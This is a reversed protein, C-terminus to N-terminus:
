KMVQWKKYEEPTLGLNRAIELQTADLGAGQTTVVPSRTDSQMVPGAALVQAARADAELKVKTKDARHAVLRDFNAPQGRIYAVLDEWAQPQSLPEKSPLAAVMKNIQDGFLAFEEPYRVRASQEATASSGSVLGGLRKEFNQSVALVARAQMYRIAALPDKTHLEILQEDTLEKDVEAQQQVVVTQQQAPVAAARDALEKRQQESLRLSDSVGKALQLLETVSKGKFEDPIGDGDLKIKDLELKAPVADVAALEELTVVNDGDSEPM